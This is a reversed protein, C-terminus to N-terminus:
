IGTNGSTAEIVPVGPAIAGTQYAWAMIHLAMRDKISGSLSMHETKAWIRRRGRHEFDVELPPINGILDRLGTFRANLANALMTGDRRAHQVARM